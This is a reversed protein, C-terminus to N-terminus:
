EKIIATNTVIRLLVNVINSAILLESSYQQLDQWGMLQSLVVTLLTLINVWIVRSEWWQKTQM